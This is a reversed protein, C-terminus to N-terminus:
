RTKDRGRSHSPSSHKEQEATGIQISGVFYFVGYGTNDIQCWIKEQTYEAGQQRQRTARINQRIHECNARVMGVVTSLPVIM